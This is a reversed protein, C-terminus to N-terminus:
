NEFAAYITRISEEFDDNNVGIIINLESSGQDIMRININADALATFIKAATGRMNKMGHGAVAILAIGSEVDISDAGTEDFLDSIIENKDKSFLSDDVIVSMTDIGSPLHEFCVNHHELVELVRRGFGVEENMRDKELTIVSFNKKGAIGTIINQNEDDTRMTSVSAVIMTGCDEPKNTNRINIPIGESKVPFIAEEHLVTAGMYSLERLERYTIIGIPRPNKVIRPDACLFGSVDTWNEYLDARAAKAVIAGTIDSGGRSFTKITDNASIGYFGPIVARETRKLRESLVYNTHEAAFKGNEDFFIVEAADIFTYGLYEALIKGNLYEGRSAAYDRGVKARLASKIETFDDELSLSLSLASIIDNYRKEILSFEKEFNEGSKAMDYCRYLLDTIKIDDSFRKGPASPVIYRRDPDAEVIKKVKRFQNEDALSSGGFKAVKIGM